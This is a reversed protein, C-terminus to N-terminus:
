FEFSFRRLPGEILFNCELLVDLGVLAGIDPLDTVPITPLTFEPAGPQQPDRITISALYLTVQVPGKATMTTAPIGRTIGLSKLVSPPVNSVSSGCDVEGRLSVPAPIPLGALYLDTTTQGDVGIVVTVPLGDPSAPFSLTAM